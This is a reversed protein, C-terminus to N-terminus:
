EATMAAVFDNLKQQVNDKNLAGNRIETPIANAYTWYRTSFVSHAPQMVSANNSQDILYNTVAVGTANNWDCGVSFDNGEPGFVTLGASYYYAGLKWGGSSEFYFNYVNDATDKTMIKELTAQTARAARATGLYGGPNDSPKSGCGALM